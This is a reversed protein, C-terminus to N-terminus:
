DDDEEEKQASERARMDEITTPHVEDLVEFEADVTAGDNKMARVMQSGLKANIVLTLARDVNEKPMPMQRDGLWTAARLRQGLIPADVGDYDGDRVAQVFKLTNPADDMLDKIVDQVGSKTIQEEIIAVMEQFLPSRKLTRM